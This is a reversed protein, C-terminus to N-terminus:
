SLFNEMLALAESLSDFTMGEKLEAIDAAPFSSESIPENSILRGAGDKDLYLRLEADELIIRYPKRPEESPEESAKPVGASTVVTPASLMSGGRRYGVACGAAFLVAAFCLYATLLLIHRTKESLNNM